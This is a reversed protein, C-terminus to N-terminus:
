RYEERYHMEVDETPPTLDEREPKPYVFLMLIQDSAKAWYYIIRLGGRKGHGGMAWRLKRLGGSGPILKGADPRAVLQQQLQRYEEDSLFQQIRQTFLPTEIIGCILLIRWHRLARM